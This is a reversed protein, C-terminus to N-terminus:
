LLGPCKTQIAQLQTSCPDTTGGPAACFDADNNDITCRFFANIADECDSSITLSGTKQYCAEYHEKTLEEDNDEDLTCEVRDLCFEDAISDENDENDQCELFQAEQTKCDTIEEYDYKLSLLKSCELNNYCKEQETFQDICSRVPKEYIDIELYYDEASGSVRKNLEDKDDQELTYNTSQACSLIKTAQAKDYCIFKEVGSGTCTGEQQSDQTCTFVNSGAAKKCTFGSTVCLDNENKCNENDAIKDACKNATGDKQCFGSTCDTHNTCADGNSKGTQSQSNSNTCKFDNEGAAKTCTFGTNKCLDEQNKCTANDAIKDVCKNATGDKQCFGSTCENHNTCVTGNALKDTQQSNDDNEKEGCATFSLALAIISLFAFKKM